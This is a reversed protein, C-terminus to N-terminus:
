LSVSWVSDSDETTSWKVKVIEKLPGVDLFVNKTGPNLVQDQSNQPVFDAWNCLHEWDAM